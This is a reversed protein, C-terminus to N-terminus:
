LVKIPLRTPMVTSPIRTIRPDSSVKAILKKMANPANKREEGGAALKGGSNKLNIRRTSERMYPSGAISPIKLPTPTMRRFFQARTETITNEISSIIKLPIPIKIVNLTTEEALRGSSSSASNRKNIVANQDIGRPAPAQHAM